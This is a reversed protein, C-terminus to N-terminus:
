GGGIQRCGGVIEKVDDGFANDFDLDILGIPQGVGGAAM